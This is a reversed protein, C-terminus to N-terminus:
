VQNMKNMGFAGASIMNISIVLCIGSVIGSPLFGIATNFNSIIIGLTQGYFCLKFVDKKSLGLGLNNNISNVFIGFILALLAYKLFYGICSIIFSVVIYTYIFPIMQRLSDNNFGETLLNDLKIEQYRTIKNGSNVAVTLYEGGFALYGSTRNLREDPVRDEETDIVIKYIGLSMEFKKEISLRGDKFEMPAMKKMFLNDFGGFGTILAATPVAVRVIGLALMLVVAFLAFRGKKQELMEKYKSPKFMAYVIQESFTM